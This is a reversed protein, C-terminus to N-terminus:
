LIFVAPCREAHLLLLFIHNVLDCWVLAGLMKGAGHLEGGKGLVVFRVCIPGREEPEVIVDKLGVREDGFLEVVLDYALCPEEEVPLAGALGLSKRDVHHGVHVDDGFAVPALPGVRGIFADDGVAM